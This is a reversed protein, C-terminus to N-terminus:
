GHNQVDVTFTHDTGCCWGCREVDRDRVSLVTDTVSLASIQIRVTLGQLVYSDNQFIREM